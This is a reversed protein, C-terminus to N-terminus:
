ALLRRAPQDTTTRMPSCGHPYAESLDWRPRATSRSCSTTRPLSVTRISSPTKPKTGVLKGQDNRTLTARVHILGRSLDVSGWKLALLERQRLGTDSATIYLVHYRSGIAAERFKRIEEESELFVKPKKAASPKDVLAVINRAVKGRKFAVQV